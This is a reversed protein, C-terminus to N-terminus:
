WWKLNLLKVCWDPAKWDFEPQSLMSGMQRPRHHEELISRRTHLEVPPNAERMPRVAVAAAQIAMQMIVAKMEQFKAM